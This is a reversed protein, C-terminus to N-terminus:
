GDMNTLLHLTFREKRHGTDIINVHKEGKIHLTYNNTMDFYCPVQDANYVDSSRGDMQGYVTAVQTLFLWAQEQLEAPTRRDPASTHTVRRSGINHRRCFRYIWMGTAKFSDPLGPQRLMEQQLLRYTM